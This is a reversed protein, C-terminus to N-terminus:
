GRDPNRGRDRRHLKVRFTQEHLAQIGAQLSFCFLQHLWSVICPMGEYSVNIRELADRFHVDVESSDVFKARLFYTIEQIKFIGEPDCLVTPFLIRINVSEADAIKDLFIIEFLHIGGCLGRRLFGKFATQLFRFLHYPCAAGAPCCRCFSELSLNFVTFSPAEM